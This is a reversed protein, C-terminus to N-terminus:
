AVAKREAAALKETRQNLAIVHALKKWGDIRRQKIRLAAGHRLSCSFPRAFAPDRGQAAQACCSV